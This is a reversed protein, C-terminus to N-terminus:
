AITPKRGMRDRKIKLAKAVDHDASLVKSLYNRGVDMARAIEARTKGKLKEAGAILRNALSKGEGQRAAERDAASQAELARHAREDQRARQADRIAGKVDKESAPITRELHALAEDPPLPRAEEMRERVGAEQNEALRAGTAMNLMVEAARTEANAKDPGSELVATRVMAALRAGGVAEVVAETSVNELPGEAPSAGEFAKKQLPELLLKEYKAQNTEATIVPALVAYSWGKEKFLKKLHPTHYGGAILVAVKEKERELAAETNKMFALDREDVSAYFAELRAKSEELVDNQPVMADFAGLDALRRNLFALYAITMFDKENTKFQAFEKTSMQIRFATELLKTFRDIARILRADRTSLLKGYAAQEAREMEDLLADRDLANFAELYNLYASLQPYDSLSIKKKEAINFTNRLHSCQFAESDGFRDIKEFREDRGIRGILAAQELNAADFDIAQEQKKLEKLRSLQPYGTWEIGAAGGLVLLSAFNQTEVTGHEYDLLADSYNRRKLTELARRIKALYDLAEARKAALAAYAKVSEEYLPRDEIGIIKMPHDSTLNLYEAGSIKGEMLFKKAVRRWVEPSAVSKIPTLTDDRSGGEVLVLNVRYRSMIQDLARALNMQGGTNAHADQVHLILKDSQNKSIEKVQVFRAPAEFRGPDSAILEYPSVAAPGAADFAPAAQALELFIFTFALIFAISRVVPKHPKRDM